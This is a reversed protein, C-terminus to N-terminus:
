KSPYCLQVAITIIVSMFEKHLYIYDILIYIHNETLRLDYDM